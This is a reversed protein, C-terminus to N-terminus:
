NEEPYIANIMLSALESASTSCDDELWAMSMNFLMGAYLLPEYKNKDPFESAFMKSFNDNLYNLYLYELHAHKLLKLFAMQEKFLSFARETIQLYDEKSRPYYRQEATFLHTMRNFHYIIIDEKTKFHRYFTARGVGAKNVIDTISIKEYEYEKMLRFLAEIIYHKIYEERSYEM